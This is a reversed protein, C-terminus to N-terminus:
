PVASNLYKETRALNVSYKEPQRINLINEPNLPFMQKTDLNKLCRKAFLLFRIKRRESLFYVQKQWVPNIIKM